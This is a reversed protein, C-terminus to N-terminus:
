VRAPPAEGQPKAAEPGGKKSSFFVPPGSRGSSFPANGSNDASSANRFEQVNAGNPGGWSSGGAGQDNNNQYSM